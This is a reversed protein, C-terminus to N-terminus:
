VINMKSNLLLTPHLFSKPCLSQEKDVVSQINPHHLLLQIFTIFSNLLYIGPLLLRRILSSFSNITHACCNGPTHQATSAAAPEEDRPREFIQYIPGLEADQLLKLQWRRHRFSAVPPYVSGTQSNTSQSYHIM